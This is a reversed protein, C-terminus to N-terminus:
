IHFSQSTLLLNLTWPGCYLTIRSILILEIWPVSCAVINTNCVVQKLLIEIFGTNVQIIIPVSSSSNTSKRSHRTFFSIQNELTDQDSMFDIDKMADRQSAATSSEGAGTNGFQGYSSSHASDSSLQFEHSIDNLIIDSQPGHFTDIPPKIPKTTLPPRATNSMRLRLRSLLYLSLMIFIIVSFQSIRM